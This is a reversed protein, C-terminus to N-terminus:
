GLGGLAGAAAGAICLYPAFAIRQHLSWRRVALMPVAVVVAFVPALLLALLGLPWGLAVGILVALKVDGGGIAGPRWFYLAALLSLNALGGVVAALYGAAPLWPAAAFAALTGVYVWRNPVRHHRWDHLSVALLLGGLAALAVWDATARPIETAWM